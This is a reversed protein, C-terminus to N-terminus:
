RSRLVLVGQQESIQVRNLFSNGLLVETPYDGMVVVADILRLTIGGITVKNLQVQYSEVLGGATSLKQFIGNSYDIGLRKAEDRNMAISTAGTDVMFEVRRGNIAGGVFYHGRRDRPIRVESGQRASYGSGIQRSLKLTQQIGEIEVVAEAKHSSILKVGEPSTEGVKLVRTSGDIVLVARGKFLGNLKVDPAALVPIGGCLAGLWFLCILVRKM